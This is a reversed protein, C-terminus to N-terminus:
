ELCGIEKLVDEIDLTRALEGELHSVTVEVDALAVVIEVV